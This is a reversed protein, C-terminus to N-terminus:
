KKIKNPKSPQNPLTPQNNKKDIREECLQYKNLIVARCTATECLNENWEFFATCDKSTCLQPKGLVYAMCDKTECLQSKSALLALCENPHECLQWKNLTLGLCDKTACLSDKRLVFAECSGSLNLDMELGESLPLPSSQIQRKQVMSVETPQTACSTLILLFGCFFLKRGYERIM